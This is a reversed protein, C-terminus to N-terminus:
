MKVKLQQNTETQAEQDVDEGEAAQDTETQAEQDVEEAQDRNPRDDQRNKMKLM